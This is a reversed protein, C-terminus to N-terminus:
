IVFKASYVTIWKDVSIKLETEAYDVIMEMDKLNKETWDYGSEKIYEGIAFRVENGDDDSLIMSLSSDKQRPLNVVFRNGEMVPFCRFDGESLSGDARYGNINGCIETRYPISNGGSLLEVELRAFNKCMDVAIESYGPFGVCVKDHFSYIEGCDEGLPIVLDPFSSHFAMQDGGYVNVTLCGEPVEVDYWRNVTDLAVHSNFIFDDASVNVRLSDFLDTGVDGM